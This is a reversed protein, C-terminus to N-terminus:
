LGFFVKRKNKGLYGTSCRSNICFIKNLTRWKGNCFVVKGVTICSGNDAVATICVSAIRVTFFLSFHSAISQSLSKINGCVINYDTRRTNDTLGYIDISDDATNGFENFLKGFVSSRGCFSYHRCIGNLFFIGNLKFDATFSSMDTSNCLTRTHYVGIHCGHKRENCSVYFDTCFHEVFCKM